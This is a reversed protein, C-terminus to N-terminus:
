VQAPGGPAADGEATADATADATAEAPAATPAAPAGPRAEGALIAYLRRRAEDLVKVAEEYERPGGNAAVQGVVPMLHGVAHRLDRAGVPAGAAMQEWPAPGKALEAAADRGEQTLSFRRKGGGEDAQAIVLGEDELLQLTPYISGPSPRWLGETRDALEGIIEYGHMPHEALLVLIASRVDGRRARGWGRGGGRGWGRAAMFPGAGFVAGPGRGGFGPGPGFDRGHGFDGPGFDPGPGFGGGGAGPGFEPGFERGRGAAWGRRGGRRGPRPSDEYSNHM